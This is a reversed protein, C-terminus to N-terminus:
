SILKFYLVQTAGFDYKKALKDYASKYPESVNKEYANAGFSSQAICEFGEDEFITLLAKRSFLNLHEVVIYHAFVDGLLIALDNFHPTQVLVEGGNKLLSKIQRVTDKPYPVHEIVDWLTVLSFKKESLDEISATCNFGNRIADSIMDAGVDYGYLKEKSIGNNSLFELFVGNACGYDLIDGQEAVKSLDCRADALSYSYENYVNPKYEDSYRLKHNVGTDIKDALEMETYNSNYYETLENETPYPAIHASGCHSCQIWESSFPGRTKRLLFVGDNAGCIRCQNKM